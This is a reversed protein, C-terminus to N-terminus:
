RQFVSSFEALWRKLNILPFSTVELLKKPDHNIPIAASFSGIPHELTTTTQMHRHDIPNRTSCARPRCSGFLKQLHSPIAQSLPFRVGQLCMELSGVTEGLSPPMQDTFETYSPFRPSLSAKRFCKASECITGFSYSPEALMHDLARSM